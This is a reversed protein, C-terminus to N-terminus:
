LSYNLYGKAVDSAYTELLTASLNEAFTPVRLRYVKPVPQQNFRQTKFSKENFHSPQGFSHQGQTNEVGRSQGGEYCQM